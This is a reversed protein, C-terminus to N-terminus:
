IYYKRRSRPSNPATGCLVHETSYLTGIPFSSYITHIKIHHLSEPNYYILGVSPEHLTIHRTRRQTGSQGNWWVIRLAIPRM